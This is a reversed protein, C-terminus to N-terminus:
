HPYWEATPLPYLERPIERKTIFGSNDYTTPAAPFRLVNGTADVWGALLVRDGTQAKVPTILSPGGAAIWMLCVAIVTLVLKTYRDVSM